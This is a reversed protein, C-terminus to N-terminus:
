LSHLNNPKGLAIRTALLRIDWHESGVKVFEQLVDFLV